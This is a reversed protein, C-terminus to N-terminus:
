ASSVTLRHEGFTLCLEFQKLSGSHEKNGSEKEDCGVCVLPRNHVLCQEQPRGTSNQTQVM